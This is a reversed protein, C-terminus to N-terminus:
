SDSTLISSISAQLLKSVEELHNKLQPNDGYNLDKSLILHYRSEELSGQAINLYRTKDPRTKKIRKGGFM